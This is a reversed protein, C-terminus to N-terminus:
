LTIDSILQQLSRDAVSWFRQREEVLRAVHVPPPERPVSREFDCLQAVADACDRTKVTLAENRAELAADVLPYLIEVLLRALEREAGRAEETTRVTRLARQVRRLDAVAAGFPASDGSPAPANV